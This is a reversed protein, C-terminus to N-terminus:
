GSISPPLTLAVPYCDRNGDFFAGSSFFVPTKENVLPQPELEILPM